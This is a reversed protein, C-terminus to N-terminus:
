FWLNFRQRPLYRYGVIVAMRSNTFTMGHSLSADVVTLLRGMLSSRMLNRLVVVGGSQLAWMVADACSNLSQEDDIANVVVFPLTGACEERYSAVADNLTPCARIRDRYRRTVEDYVADHASDGKYIIMRSTDSVDLLATSSVGYSTGIQLLVPPHFYCAIRFLMRASKRSILKPRRGEVNHALSAALARHKDIDSYAYYELDERLVRLVFAFAFPSHIGFGKSRKYRKIATLYLNLRRNM